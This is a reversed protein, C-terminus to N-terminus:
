KLFLMHAVLDGTFIPAKQSLWFFYSRIAFHLGTTLMTSYEDLYEGSDVDRSITPEQTHLIVITYGSHLRLSPLREETYNGTSITVNSLSIKISDTRPNVRQEQSM